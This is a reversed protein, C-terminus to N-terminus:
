CYTVESSQTEVQWSSTDEVAMTVREPVVVQGPSTVKSHTGVLRESYM